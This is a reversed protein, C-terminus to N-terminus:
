NPNIEQESTLKHFDVKDEFYEVLNKTNVNWKMLVFLLMSMEGTSLKNFRRTSKDVFKLKIENDIISEMTYLETKEWHYM